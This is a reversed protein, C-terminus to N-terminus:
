STISPPLSAGSANLLQSIATVIQASAFPKSILISLPVGQSKWEETAVSSVYIVPIEPYLERARRAVEWGTTQGVLNIDTVLAQISPNAELKAVAKEGRAESTTSFGGDSITSELEMQILADDEVILVLIEQV